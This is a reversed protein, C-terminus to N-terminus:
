DDVLVQNSGCNTESESINCVERIRLQFSKGEHYCNYTKLLSLIDSKALVKEENLRVYFIKDPNM